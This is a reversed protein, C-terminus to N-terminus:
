GVTLMPRDVFIYLYIVDHAFACDPNSNTENTEYFTVFKPDLTEREHHIM